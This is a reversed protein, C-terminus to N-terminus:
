SKLKRRRLAAAGVLASVLLLGGSPLPVVAAPVAARVRLTAPPLAPSTTYNQTLDLLDGSANADVIEAIFHSGLGISLASGTPANLFLATISSGSSGLPTSFADLLTGTVVLGSAAGPTLDNASLTSPSGPMITTLVLDPLGCGVFSFTGGTAILFGQDEYSAGTPDVEFGGITAASAASSAFVLNLTLFLAKFYM